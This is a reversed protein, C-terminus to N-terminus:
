PESTLVEEYLLIALTGLEVLQLTTQIARAAGDIARYSLYRFNRNTLFSYVVSSDFVTAGLGGLDGSEHYAFFRSYLIQFACGSM